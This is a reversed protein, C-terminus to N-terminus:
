LVGQLCLHAAEAQAAVQAVHALEREMREQEM